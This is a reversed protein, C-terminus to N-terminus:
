HLLRKIQLYDNKTIKRLSQGFTMGWNDKNKIFGLTERISKDNLDIRKGEWPDIPGFKFMADLKVETDGISARTPAEKDSALRTEGALYKGKPGGVYFLVIDDKRLQDIKNRIQSNTQFGWSGAHKLDDFFDANKGSLVFIWYSM